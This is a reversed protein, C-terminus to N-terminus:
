AAAIFLKLHSAHFSLLEHQILTHKDLTLVCTCDNNATATHIHSM